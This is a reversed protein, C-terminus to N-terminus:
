IKLIQYYKSNEDAYGAFLVTMLSLVFMYLLKKM